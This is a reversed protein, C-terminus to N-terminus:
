NCKKNLTKELVNEPRKEKIQDGGQKEGGKIDNTDTLTTKMGMSALSKAM